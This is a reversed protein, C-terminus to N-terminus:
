DSNFVQSLLKKVEPWQSLVQENEFRIVKLGLSELINTRSQDYDKQQLHIKGDIEVVLKREHCYFDVIFYAKENSSTAYEILFQRNFKFGEFRRNRVKEWFFEEAPTQNKRLERALRRIELYSSM